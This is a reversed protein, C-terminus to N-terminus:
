PRLEDLTVRVKTRGEHPYGVDGFGNEYRNTPRGAWLFV